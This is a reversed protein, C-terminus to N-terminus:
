GSKLLPTGHPGLPNAWPLGPPSGMAVWTPYAHSGLTSSGMPVWAHAGLTKYTKMLKKKNM